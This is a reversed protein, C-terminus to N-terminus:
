KTRISYSELKGRKNFSEVKIFGEEESIYTKSSTEMKAMKMDMKTTEEVIFCNYKGRPTEVEEKGSVNRNTSLFSLDMNMMGMDVSINTEADPLNMGVSLNSPFERYDMDVTVDMGEYGAIMPEIMSNMDIKYKDGECLITFEIPESQEKGKKDFSQGIFVAKEDNMSSLEITQSGQKKGKANFHTIEMSEGESIPYFSNCQASLLSYSLLLIASLFISKM